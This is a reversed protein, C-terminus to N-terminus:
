SSSSSSSSSSSVSPVTRRTVSRETTPLVRKPLGRLQIIPITSTLQNLPSPERVSTARVSFSQPARVSASQPARVPVFVTAPEVNVVTLTDNTYNEDTTPSENSMSFSDDYQELDESAVESGFKETIMTTAPPTFITRARRMVKGDMDTKGEEFKEEEEDEEEEDNNDENDDDM